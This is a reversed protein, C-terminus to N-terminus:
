ENSDPKADRELQEREARELALEQALTLLHEGQRSLAVTLHLILGFLALVVIAFLGVITSRVGLAQSLWTLTIPASAAIIMATAAGLWIITYRERLWRRRVLELLIIVVVLGLTIATIRTQITLPAPM